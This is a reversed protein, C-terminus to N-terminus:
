FTVELSAISLLSELEMFSNFNNPFLGPFTIFFVAKKTTLTQKKGGYKTKTLLYM